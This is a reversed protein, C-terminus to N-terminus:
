RGSLVLRYAASRHIRINALGAKEALNALEAAKFGRLISLSGDYLTFNQLFLRGLIRYFYYAIPSRHLDIAIVRRRSVRKMESVLEIAKEDNLHHLFLSCIVYDFENDNFPLRLADGRIAAFGRSMITRAADPNLELGALLPVPEIQWETITNLLEGSGAGVDLISVREGAADIERLLSNRLARSEGFFRHIVTMERQWKEYEAPTYDGTDLRELQYSRQKFRGFM